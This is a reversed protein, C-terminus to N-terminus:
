MRHDAHRTNSTVREIKKHMNQWEDAHTYSDDHIQTMLMTKLNLSSNTWVVNLDKVRNEYSIVIQLASKWTTANRKLIISRDVILNIVYLVSKGFAFESNIVLDLILWFNVITVIISHNSNAIINNTSLITIMFIIM